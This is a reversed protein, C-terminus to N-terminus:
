APVTAAARLRVYLYAPLAGIIALTLFVNKM